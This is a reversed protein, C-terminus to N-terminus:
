RGGGAAAVRGDAAAQLAAQIEDIAGEGPVARLLGRRRYHELLPATQEAYVALRRRVTAETDDERQVLAQGCRDCRGATRPPHSVLHYTAQCGPCVRRGTLRRLLEPESVELYIVADLAQGLAALVRDLAEAQALTRPFGDLVFGRKADPQALREGVLGIMIDDPVLAGQEMYGRAQRGLPTAAAVADRLMDGTAVHPVARARALLRAQTGKGAGPPGLLVLRM